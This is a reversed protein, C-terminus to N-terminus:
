CPATAQTATADGGKATLTFVSGCYAGTPITAGINILRRAM